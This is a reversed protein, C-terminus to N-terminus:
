EMLFHILRLIKLGDFWNHFSAYVRSASKSNQRYIKEWVTVFNEKELFNWVDPLKEQVAVFFDIPSGQTQLFLDLLHEIKEYVIKPYPAVTEEGAVISQLKKGTGFLVRDSFRAQPYVTCDLVPFDKAELSNATQQIHLKVLSQLFYFDEGALRKNMGGSAAYGHASCVLTPGLAWPWHPTGIKKLCASYDKIFFEYEDIAKQTKADTAKQHRFNTIAGSPVAKKQAMANRCDNQFRLLTSAYNESVLTDADMCAIVQAGCVLAYDMGYKRAWGVGQDEPMKHGDRACDLVILNLKSFSPLFDNERCVVKTTSRDQLMACSQVTSDHNTLCQLLQQNNKKISQPTSTRNNVVIVVSIAAERSRKELALKDLSFQISELTEFITPYENSAPIVIAISGAVLPDPLVPIDAFLSRKKNYLGISDKM